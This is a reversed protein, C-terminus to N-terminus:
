LRNQWFWLLSVTFCINTLVWWLWWHFKHPLYMVNPCPVTGNPVMSCFLFFIRYILLAFEHNTSTIRGEEAALPNKIDYPSSM